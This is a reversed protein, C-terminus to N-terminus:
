GPTDCPPLGAEEWSGVMQGVTDADMAASEREGERDGEGEVYQKTM